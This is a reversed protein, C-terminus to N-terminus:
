HGRSPRLYLSPVSWKKRDGFRTLWANKILRAKEKETFHYEADCMAFTEQIDPMFLDDDPNLSVFLGAELLDRIKLYSMKPILGSSFNSGPCLEIGVIKEKALKILDKGYAIPIAHGVRNAGLGTIAFAINGLLRLSDKKPNPKQPPINVWEGAHVTTLFGLEKARRFMPLHKRPPNRAEDCALGIGVVYDRDCKGAAEVLRVGEEPSVERGVAFIINVEIKPYRKEGRKIGDILAEVVDTENLGSNKNAHYQPAITAECYKFGQEARVRTYTEAALSITERSQMVGTTNSFKELIDVQVNQFLLKIKNLSEKKGGFPYKKGSLRFLEPLATYIPFSGDLHDHLLIDQPWRKKAMHTKM